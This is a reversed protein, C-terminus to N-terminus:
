RSPLDRKLGAPMQWLESVPAKQSYRYVVWGSLLVLLFAVARWLGAQRARKKVLRALEDNSHKLWEVDSGRQYSDTKLEM